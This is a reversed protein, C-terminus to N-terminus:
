FRLAYAARPNAMKERVKRLIPNGNNQIMQPRPPCNETRLLPDCFARETKSASRAPCRIHRAATNWSSIDREAQDAKQEAPFDRRATGAYRSAPCYM